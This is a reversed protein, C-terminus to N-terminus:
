SEKILHVATAKFTLYINEGQNLNMSVLSQKTIVTELLMGSVDVTLLYVAGICDIKKIIGSFCNRASSDIPTRSVFIDEARLIGAVRGDIDGAVVSIKLNGSVLYAQRNENAIEGCIINEAFSYEAIDLSVPRSFMEETTGTQLIEGAKMFFIRKGFQRAQILNHTALIITKKSKSLESIINEINKVSIPDLNATPEDFLFCEPDLILVRAISLRQKEGASLEGAAHGIKKLLGSKFLFKEVETRDIKVGRVKLGYTVNDYVTGSLMVPNQFVFGLKRRLASREAVTMCSVPKYNFLIEGSSPNDLMSLQRFLSTKGAGNAGLLVNIREPEFTVNIDKLLRIDGIEKTLEVTKIEM